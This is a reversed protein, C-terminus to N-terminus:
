SNGIQFSILDLPSITHPFIGVSGKIGDTTKSELQWMVVTYLVM